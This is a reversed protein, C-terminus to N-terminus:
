DTLNNKILYLLLSDESDDLTANNQLNYKKDLNSGEKFNM